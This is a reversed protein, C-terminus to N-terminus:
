ETAGRAPAVIVLVYGAPAEDAPLEAGQQAAAVIEWLGPGAHPIERTGGYGRALSAKSVAVTKHHAPTPKVM